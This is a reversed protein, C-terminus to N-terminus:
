KENHYNKLFLSASIVNFVFKANLLLNNKDKILKTFNEFEVYKYILNKKNEFERKFKLSNFNILSTISYNFGVKKTDQLISKEVIKKMSQRLIFKTFGDQILYKNPVTYLFEVLSKDLFPSRNEVSFYMSNLDEEHLCIPVGEFFLENLMRNRLLSKTFNKEKFEFFKKSLSKKFCKSKTNNFDYIHKRYKPNKIYLNYNQFIPNKIYKFSKSKWNNLFNKFNRNKRVEYLYQLTHDYYGSYIEDAGIGSVVVKFGDKSIQNLMYHHIFYNITSIPSDHYKILNSLDKLINKKKNLIIKKNECKLFNITKNINEIESYEKNTDIISYTKIRKKISKNAVSVISNSDIGGSLAFAIPVESRLRLKISKLLLNKSKVIIKKLSQEKPKYKLKWYRKYNLKYKNRIELISSSPFEFVGEYFTEFNKRISKYGLFIYNLLTQSNIKIKKNLLQKIFKIESGFYIGNKIKHVYLPKEGFRDRSLILKKRNNDWIALAWMGEMMNFFKKGYFFYGKLLVETDSKTQFKIKNRELKKKLELYNYIEGNFVLTLNKYTFPQNSREHLDLINLRSHLLYVNKKKNKFEIFNQSDPGRNKMLYLTKRIYKNTITKTGIYGAIGCM